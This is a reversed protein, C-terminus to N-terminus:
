DFRCIAEKWISAGNKMFNASQWWCRLFSLWMYTAAALSRTVSKDLVLPYDTGSFECHKWFNELLLDGVLRLESRMVIGDGSIANRTPKYPLGLFEAVLKCLPETVNGAVMMEGARQLEPDSPTHFIRFVMNFDYQYQVDAIPVSENVYANADGTRGRTRVNIRKSM